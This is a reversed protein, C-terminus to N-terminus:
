KKAFSIDSQPGVHLPALAFPLCRSRVQHKQTQSFLVNLTSENYFGETFVHGCECKMWIMIPDIAESYLPHAECSAHGLVEFRTGACLPCSEYKIRAQHSSGETEVLSGEQSM